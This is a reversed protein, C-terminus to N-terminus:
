VGTRNASDIPQSAVLVALIGRTSVARGIPHGGQPTWFHSRQGRVM